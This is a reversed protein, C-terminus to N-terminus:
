SSGEKRTLLSGGTGLRPAAMAAVAAGLANSVLDWGTNTFGGINSEAPLLTLLFEVSRASADPRLRDRLLEYAALTAFGFGWLHVIKDFRLEGAGWSREYIAQGGVEVLGGIMHALGWFALGWLTLPSLPTKRYLSMVM